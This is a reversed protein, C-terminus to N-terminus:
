GVLELLLKHWYISISSPSMQLACLNYPMVKVIDKNNANNNYDCQAIISVINDILGTFLAVVNCVIAETKITPLLTTLSIM